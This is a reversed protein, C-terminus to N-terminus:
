GHSGPEHRDECRAFFHVLPHDAQNGALGTLRGTGRFEIFNFPARPSESGPPIGAVNGCRIVEISRGQFHLDQKHAVHNWNGGDGSEPNCGPYVNGGWSHVPGGKADRFKAGGATLWCHGEPTPPCEIILEIDRQEAIHYGDDSDDLIKIHVRLLYAGPALLASAEFGDARIGSPNVYRFDPPAGDDGSGDHVLKGSTGIRLYNEHTPDDTRIKLHDLVDVYAYLVGASCDYRLFLRGEVGQAPDNSKYLDAFFDAETWEGPNGDVNAVGARPTPPAAAATGPVFAISVLM